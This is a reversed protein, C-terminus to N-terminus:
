IRANILTDRFMNINRKTIIRTLKKYSSKLSDIHNCYFYGRKLGIDDLRHCGNPFVWDERGVLTLSETLQKPLMVILFSEARRDYM